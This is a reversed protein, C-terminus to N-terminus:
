RIKQQIKMNFQMDYEMHSLPEVYVCAENDKIYVRHVMYNFGMYHFMSMPMEMVELEKQDRELSDVKLSGLGPLVVFLKVRM